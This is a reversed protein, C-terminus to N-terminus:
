KLVQKLVNLEFEPTWNKDIEKYCVRRIKDRDPHTKFWNSITDALSQVNGYEFFDGTIGPQIAEFEPGQYMFCNHSITPVGLTMAHIATLGIDGPVVCLDSNILLKSNEEEDYCAGYFWVNKILRRKAVLEELSKRDEGDGIFLINYHENRNSLLSVANILMDLKKRLNLRGIMVIIPFDNQFHDHMYSTPKIKNRMEVQQTYHLANHIVHLKYSKFGEKIMLRKAHNGYLLITDALKYYIKKLVARVNTEKGYWGHTWFIIKASPNFFKILIPLLWTTLLYPEGIMIYYSYEKVFALKLAGKLFWLKSFHTESLVKVNKLLSFDMGKIGSNRKGFFWDIDFEKDFLMYSSEVYRPAENM